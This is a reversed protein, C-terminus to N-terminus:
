GLGLALFGGYAGVLVWGLWRPLGGAWAICGAHLLAAGGLIALGVTFFPPVAVPAICAALGLCLPISIHGDGIQSAYVIDARGRAAYWFALLANPVVMLWGTLWGLNAANIFDGQQASLWGVLWEISVFLGVAGLLVFFLDLYFLPGFARRQQVNNKQVDFLQFSQWFLFLAVLALGDHRDIRGDAGLTWAIGSFFGVAALSLLLSLKTLAPGPGGGAAAAKRKAGRSKGAAGPAALPLGWLLAPLGLLLTLNTVNNVLCNTLVASGPAPSNAMLAVFILNGLGSCYPMVLTGLATGELGHALLGELRWLMLLSAAVFLALYTGVHTFGLTDIAETLPNM